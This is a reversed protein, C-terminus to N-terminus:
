RPSNKDMAALLRSVPLVKLIVCCILLEPLIMSANVTLSYIVPAMGEPAYSAFFVVGSIFHCAFKAAFALVTALILRQPFFGALGLAMYPLPYDFLVQLPHLIFPDQIIQILGFVFGALAGVGAGYRFSIILLPVMAGLTVSGGQPFHYLRFQSLILSLALMLVASLGLAIFSATGFMRLREASDRWQTLKVRRAYLGFVILLFIGLLAFSSTPSALVTMLNELMRIVEFFKPVVELASIAGM